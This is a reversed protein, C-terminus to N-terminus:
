NRGHEFRRGALCTVFSTKKPVQKPGRSSQLACAEALSYHERISFFDFGQRKAHLRLEVSARNWACRVVSRSGADCKKEARSATWISRHNEYFGTTLTSLRRPHTGGGLSYIFFPRVAARRSTYVALRFTKNRIKRKICGNM